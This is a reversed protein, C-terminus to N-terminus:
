RGGIMSGSYPYWATFTSACSFEVVDSSCQFRCM